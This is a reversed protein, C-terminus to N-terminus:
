TEVNSPVTNHCRCKCMYIEIQKTGENRMKGRGKCTWHRENWCNGTTDNRVKKKESKEM